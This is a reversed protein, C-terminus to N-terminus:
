SKGGIMRSLMADLQSKTEEPTLKPGRTKEATTPRESEVKIFDLRKTRYHHVLMLTDESTLDLPDITFLHQIPFEVGAASFAEPISLGHSPQNPEQTESTLTESQDQTESETQSGTEQNSSTTPTETSGVTKGLIALLTPSMPIPPSNQSSM